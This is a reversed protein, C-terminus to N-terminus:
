VDTATLDVGCLELVRRVQRSVPYLYLAVRRDRATAGARQLVHLGAASFHEVRSLDVQLSGGAPLVDLHDHLRRDLEPATLIDIDGAVLVHVDGNQRPSPITVVLCTSRASHDSMATM